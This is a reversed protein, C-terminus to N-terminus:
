SLMDELSVLMRAVDALKANRSMATKRLFQYAEDESM